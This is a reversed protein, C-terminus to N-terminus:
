TMQRPSRPPQQQQQQQQPAPPCMRPRPPARLCIRSAGACRQKQPAAPTLAPACSTCTLAESQLSPHETVNVPTHQASPHERTHLRTSIHAQACASVCSVMCCDHTRCPVAGKGREPLLISHSAKEELVRDKHHDHVRQGCGVEVCM